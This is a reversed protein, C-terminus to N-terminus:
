DMRHCWVSNLALHGIRCAGKAQAGDWGINRLAQVMKHWLQFAALSTLRHTQVVDAVLLYVGAKGFGFQRTLKM